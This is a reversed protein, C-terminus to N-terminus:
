GNDHEMMRNLEARDLPPAADVEPALVAALEAPTAYWFETPRWGLLRAALGALRNAGSGFYRPANATM